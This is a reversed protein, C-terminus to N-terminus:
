DVLNHLTKMVRNIEEEDNGEMSVVINYTKKINKDSFEQLIRDWNNKLFISLDHLDELLGNPNHSYEIGLMRFVNKGSLVVVDNKAILDERNKIFKLYPYFIFYVEFTNDNKSHFLLNAKILDWPYRKIDISDSLIHCSIADYRIIKKTKLPRLAVIIDKIDEM